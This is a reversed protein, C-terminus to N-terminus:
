SVSQCIEYQGNLWQAFVSESSQPISVEASITQDGYEMRELKGGVQQVKNIVAQMSTYPYSIRFTAFPEYSIIEAEQLALETATRYANILGPTGLLVGGFYRVVVVLIDSLQRKIIQNLIPKGATGSPEGDDNSRETRSPENLVYAFCVHRADHFKNRYGDILEKAAEASRVHHAFALFRSGRDKFQSSVPSSISYYM